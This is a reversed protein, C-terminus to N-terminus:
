LIVLMTELTNDAVKVTPFKIPARTRGIVVILLPITWWFEVNEAEGEPQCTDFEIPITHGARKGVIDAIETALDRVTTAHKSGFQIVGKNLGKDKVLLLAEVIDDVFVFDRYQNGTGWVIYPEGPYALAKRVLSPIAQGSVMSYDSFPGYVNCFRLLGINFVGPETALEAEYEGM